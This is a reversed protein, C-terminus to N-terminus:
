KYKILSSDTPPAENVTKAGLPKEGKNFKKKKDQRDIYDKDGSSNGISQDTETGVPTPNLSYAANVLEDISHYKILEQDIGAEPTDEFEDDRDELVRMEPKKSKLVMQQFQNFRARDSGRADFASVLVDFENLIDRGEELMTEYLFTYLEIEKEWNPNDGFARELKEWTLDYYQSDAFVYM